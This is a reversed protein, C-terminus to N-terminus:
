SSPLFALVFTSLANFLLSMVKGVFIQRTLVITKGITMHPTPGYLLSLVSSIITKFQPAPSSEQSDRPSYPTWVLLFDVRFIRNTPLVSASASVEISQGGSAFLRSMPFSGSAPFPQPCFLTSSTLYCRLSLPYSNSCVRPSLLPCLFRTAATWSTVFTLYSSLSQAAAFTNHM